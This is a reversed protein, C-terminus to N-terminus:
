VSSFALKGHQYLQRAELKLGAAAVASRLLSEGHKILTFFAQFSINTLGTSIDAWSFLNTASQIYFHKSLYKAILKLNM